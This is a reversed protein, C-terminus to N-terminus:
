RLPPRPPAVAHAKAVAVVARDDLVVDDDVGGVNRDGREGEAVALDDVVLQEIEACVREGGGSRRAPVWIEASGDEGAVKDDAIGALQAGPHGGAGAGVVAAEARRVAVGCVARADLVVMDEAALLAEADDVDAVHDDDAVRGGM